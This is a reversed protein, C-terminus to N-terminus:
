MNVCSVYSVDLSYVRARQTICMQISLEQGSCSACWVHNSEMEFRRLSAGGHLNKKSTGTRVSQVDLGCADMCAKISVMARRVSDIFVKLFCSCDIELRDKYLVRYDVDQQWGLFTALVDRFTEAAQAISLERLWRLPVVSLCLDLLGEARSVRSQPSGSVYRLKRRQAAKSQLQLLTELLSLLSWAGLLLSRNDRKSWVATLM